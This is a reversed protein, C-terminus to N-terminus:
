SSLDPEEGPWRVTVVWRPRPFDRIDLPRPSRPTTRDLVVWGSQPPIGVARFKLTNLRRALESRHSAAVTQQIDSLQRALADGLAIDDPGRYIRIDAVEAPEAEAPTWQALATIVQSRAQSEDYAHVVWWQEWM